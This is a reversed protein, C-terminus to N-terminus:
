AAGREALAARRLHVFRRIGLLPVAVRAVGHFAPRASAWEELRPEVVRYDAGNWRIMGEAAARVNRYWDTREGFPLPIVFGDATPRVVVPTAYVRGSRRGRHSVVAFGPAVRQGALRAMLPNLLRGGIGFVLVTGRRAQTAAGRERRRRAAAYRGKGLWTYFGPRSREIGPLSALYRTGYERFWWALRGTFYPRHPKDRPYSNFGIADARGLAIGQGVYALSLPKPPRGRLVDALADAGHAGLIQATFASMRVPVGPEERPAAADGVAYIEPHDLVRMYPDIVLQDRANVPLGAERALTPAVFGGTWIVLDAPIVSGAATVVGDARVATILTEDDITVGSRTLSRRVYAAVGKGWAQGLTGDTVLRVHLCPYATAFEAATEIGTAGGGAVLVRGHRTALEPLRERLAAASLPGRPVLTYAHEAVGPVRQRDTLSGLAYVLYDYALVRTQGDERIHVTRAEPDLRGVRGLEFRVSTGRLTEAIPRPPITQNTAFQHLRLRETFTASENVLTIQADQPAIQGALRTTFLLGAYGAGLVVIRPQAPTM